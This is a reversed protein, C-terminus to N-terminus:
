WGGAGLCPKASRLPGVLPLENAEQEHLIKWAEREGKDGTVFSSVPGYMPNEKLRRNKPWVSDVKLSALSFLVIDHYCTGVGILM